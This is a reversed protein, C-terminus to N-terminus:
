SFMKLWNVFTLATVSLLIMILQVMEGLSLVTGKGFLFSKPGITCWILKDYVNDLM